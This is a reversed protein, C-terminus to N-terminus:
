YENYLIFYEVNTLQTVPRYIMQEGDWQDQDFMPDDVKVTTFEIVTDTIHSRIAFRSPFSGCFGMSLKKRSKDFACKQLSFTAIKANSKKNM